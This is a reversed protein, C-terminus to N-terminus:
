RLHRGGDLPFSRGTVFCSTL